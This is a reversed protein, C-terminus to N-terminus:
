VFNSMVEAYAVLLHGDPNLSILDQQNRNSIYNRGKRDGPEEIGSGFAPAGGSALGGKWLVYQGLHSLVSLLYLRLCIPVSTGDCVM